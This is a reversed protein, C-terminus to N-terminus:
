LLVGGKSAFPLSQVLLTKKHVGLHALTDPLM